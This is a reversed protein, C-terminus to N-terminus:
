VKTAGLGLLAARSKRLLPSVLGTKRGCGPRHILAEGVVFTRMSEISPIASWALVRVPTFSAQQRFRAQGWAYLGIYQM